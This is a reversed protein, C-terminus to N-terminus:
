RSLGPRLAYLIGVGPIQPVDRVVRFGVNTLLTTVEDRLAPSHYEIQIRDVQRLVHSGGRLVAMESGEADVKLLDIHDLHHNRALADLTIRPVVRGRQENEPTRELLSASITSRGPVSLVASGESEGAGALTTQVRGQLQNVRLAQTLNRYTDPNPEVAFVRGGRAAQVLTFAGVNAGIDVVTWGPHVIFAPDQDYVRLHLVEHIGVVEEAHQTVFFTLGSLHIHLDPAHATRKFRHAVKGALYSLGFRVAELREQRTRALQWARSFTAYAYTTFRWGYGAVRHVIV